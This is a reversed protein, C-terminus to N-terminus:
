LAFSLVVSLSLPVPVFSLSLLVPVLRQRM